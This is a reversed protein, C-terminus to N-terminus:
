VRFGLGWVGFGLGGRSPTPFSPQPRPGEIPQLGASTGFGSVGFLPGWFGLGQTRFGFRFWLFNYRSARFGLTPGKSVGPFHDAFDYLCPNWGPFM